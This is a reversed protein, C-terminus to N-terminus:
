IFFFTFTIFQSVILIYRLSHLIWEDTRVPIVGQTAAAAVPTVTDM